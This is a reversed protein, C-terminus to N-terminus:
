SAAIMQIPSYVLRHHYLSNSSPNLSSKFATFRVTNYQTDFLSHTNTTAIASSLQFFAFHSPLIIRPQPSTQGEYPQSSITITCNLFCFVVRYKRAQGLTCHGRRKDRPSTWDSATRLTVSYAQLRPPAQLSHYGVTYASLWLRLVGCVDPHWMTYNVPCSLRWHSRIDQMYDQNWPEIANYVQAVRIWVWPLSRM